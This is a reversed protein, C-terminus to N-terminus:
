NLLIRKVLDIVYAVSIPKEIFDFAGANLAKQKLENDNRATIFVVPISKTEINDKLENFVTFGDKEPMMIDLLILDPKEKTAIKIAEIGNYAISSQIGEGLLINELLINNTNSDDVILVNKNM